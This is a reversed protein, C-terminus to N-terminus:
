EGVSDDGELNSAWEAAAVLQEDPDEIANIEDVQQQVTEVKDWNIDGDDPDFVDDADIDGIEDEGTSM